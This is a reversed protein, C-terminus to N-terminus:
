KPVSRPVPQVDVFIIHGVTAMAMSVVAIVAWKVWGAVTRLEPLELEVQRLRIEQEKQRALCQERDKEMAAFARRLGERTENHSTELRVMQKLSESIEHQSEALRRVADELLSLRINEDSM